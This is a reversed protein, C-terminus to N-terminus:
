AFKRKTGDPGYRSWWRASALVLLATALELWPPAGEEPLARTAQGHSFFLGMLLWAGWTQKMSARTFEKTDLAWFFLGLCSTIAAGVGLAMLVGLSGPHAVAVAGCAANLLGIGCWM